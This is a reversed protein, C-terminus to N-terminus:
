FKSTELSFEAKKDSSIINQQMTASDLRVNRTLLIKKNDLSLILQSCKLTYTYELVIKCIKSLSYAM